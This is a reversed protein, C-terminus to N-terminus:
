GRTEIEVDSLNLPLSIIFRTGNERSSKCVITGGLDQVARHVISLGLGSHGHKKTSMFPSFLKEQIEEPIGPGNDNLTIVVGQPRDNEVRNATTIFISGGDKIAEASNKVLNIIIQKLKDKETVIEVLQPDTSLHPHINAPALLSPTMIKLMDGILDNANITEAQYATTTSFSNLQGITKSIRAIEEDLIHLEQHIDTNDTIKIELLKLYNSIIGLPNNVEHIVKRAALSATAMRESHLKQAEQRKMEDLQLCIATQGAILQLEKQQHSLDCGKTEPVNLVIIGVPEKQALMPVYMMGKGQVLNFLQIDAINTPQQADNFLTLLRQEELSRFVLSTSKAASLSLDQVLERNRNAPSTSGILRQTNSDYLLFFITECEFLIRIIEETAALAADRSDTQILDKFFGTLLANSEVQRSLELNKLLFTDSKEAIDDGDGPLHHQEGNKSKQPPTASPLTIDVELSQAIEEVEDKAGGIIKQMKATDLDFLERGHRYGTELETEALKSIRDALFTIKVIPFGEQIHEASHHHYYAADAIFPSVKWNKLLWSGAECHSIGILQKETACEEAGMALKDQILIFEKPFNVFLILHGINHLLGALYAEERNTHHVALAIRKGLTACLLSHYWFHGMKFGSEKRIGKFVQQVSATIALNKITGAGLYIIAQDLNSYTRNLGFYASNVLQLVKSSLSTDKAVIPSIASIPVNEDDCADILKVLLHPLSPLPSSERIQSFIQEKSKM